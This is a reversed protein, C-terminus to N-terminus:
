ISFDRKCFAVFGVNFLVISAAFLGISGWVSDQECNALGYADYLSFPSLNALWDAGSGVSSLLVILLSLICLGAGVWLAASPRQFFCSSAFCLSVAFLGLAILGLNARAIADTDLEDPFSIQSLTLESSWLVAVILLLAVVETFIM